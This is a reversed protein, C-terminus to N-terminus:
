AMAALEPTEVVAVQWRPFAKPSREKGILVDLDGNPRRGDFKGTQEKGKDSTVVVAVGRDIERWNNGDPDRTLMSIPLATIDPKGELRVNAQGAMLMGLYEARSEEGKDKVLIADGIKAGSWELVAGNHVKTLSECGCHYALWAMMHPGVPGGVICDKLGRFRDYEHELKAPINGTGLMTEALKQDDRHMM